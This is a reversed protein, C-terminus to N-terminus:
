DWMFEDDDGRGRKKGKKKGRGNCGDGDGKEARLREAERALVPVKDLLQLALKIKKKLEPRDGKKMYTHMFLVVSDKVNLPDKTTALKQVVDLLDDESSQLLLTELLIRLFLISGQGLRSVDM